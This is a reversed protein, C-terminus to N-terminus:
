IEGNSRKEASVDISMTNSTILTLVHARFILLLINKM